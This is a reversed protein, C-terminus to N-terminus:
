LPDEQEIRALLDSVKSEIGPGFTTLCSYMALIVVMEDWLLARNHDKAVRQAMAEDPCELVLSYVLNPCTGKILWHTGLKIPEWRQEMQDNM